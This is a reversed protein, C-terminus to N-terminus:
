VFALTASRANKATNMSRKSLLGHCRDLLSDSLKLLSRATTTMTVLERSPQLASADDTDVRANRLAQHAHDSVAAHEAELTHYSMPQPDGSTFCFTM